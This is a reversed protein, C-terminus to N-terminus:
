RNVHKGFKLVAQQLQTSSGGVVAACLVDTAM